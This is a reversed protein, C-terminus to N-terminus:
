QRGLLETTQIRAVLQILAMVQWLLDQVAQQYM